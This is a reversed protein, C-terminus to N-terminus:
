KELIRIDKEGAVIVKTAMRLFLGHEVIGAKNELKDALEFPNQIIGFNADIIYNNEDTLVPKGNDYKRLDPEGNLDIVFKSILPHAFKVVELPVAWKQGLKDSMKSEDVVV